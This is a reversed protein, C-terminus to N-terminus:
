FNPFSFLFLGRRRYAYAQLMKGHYTKPKKKNEENILPNTTTDKPKNHQNGDDVVDTDTCCFYRKLPFCM